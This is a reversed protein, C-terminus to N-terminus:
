LLNAIKKQNRWFRQSGFLYGLVGGTGMGTWFGPRSNANNHPRAFNNGFGYGNSTSGFGASAGTNGMYDPKFGPPPPGM